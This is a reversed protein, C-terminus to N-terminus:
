MNPCQKVDANNLAISIEGVTEKISEENPGATSSFELKGRASPNGELFLKQYDVFHHIESCIWCYEFRCKHCYIENSSLWITNIHGCNICKSYSRDGRNCLIVYNIFSEEDIIDGYEILCDKCFRHSCDM